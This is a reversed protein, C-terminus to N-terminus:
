VERWRGVYRGRGGEGEEEAGVGVRRRVEGEEKEGGGVRV